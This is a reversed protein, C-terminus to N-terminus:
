EVGGIASAAQIRPGMAIGPNGRAANSAVIATVACVAHINSPNFGDLRGQAKGSPTQRRVTPLGSYSKPMDFPDLALFVKIAASGLIPIQFSWERYHHNRYSDIISDAHAAATEDEMLLSLGHRLLRNFHALIGMQPHRLGAPNAPMPLHPFHRGHELKRPSSGDSVGAAGGFSRGHARFFVPRNGALWQKATGCGSLHRMLLSLNYSLAATLQRKCLNKRGRLTARRHKRHDLAHCFSREIHEGRRRLLTKGSKSKVARKAKSLV